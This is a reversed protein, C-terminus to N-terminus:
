ASRSLGFQRPGFLRVPRRLIPELPLRRLAQVCHESEDFNINGTTNDLESSFDGIGGGVYAGQQEEYDQAVAQGTGAFALVAVAIWNREM